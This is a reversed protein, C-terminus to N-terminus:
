DVDIIDDCYLCGILTTELGGISWIAIGGHLAFACQAVVLIVRQDDSLRHRWLAANAVLVTLMCLIGLLRVADILDVGVYGLAAVMLVWALNSYGEVPHGDNWSLGDGALFREAYRLSILTDDSIFPMYTFANILLLLLPLLVFGILQQKSTTLVM